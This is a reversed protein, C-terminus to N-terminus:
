LPMASARRIARNGYLVTERIVHVLRGCIREL